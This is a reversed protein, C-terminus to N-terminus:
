RRTPEWTPNQEGRLARMWAAGAATISGVLYGLTAIARPPPNRKEPWRFALGGLLTGLAVAAFLVGAGPSRLAMLGLGVGALPMLATAVWRIVKHSWLMFAFRGHRFPDLLDRMFWLTELGRAMTRIKRRREVDLGPTRPVVALAQPVSVARYGARRALLASAFDRSLAAPFDSAFLGRRIAMFCGSAGVISGFRTELDRVWMEYGVYGSESANAESSAAAASVDRGSAAGVAPDQFVAVLPKISAPLVRTTADTSVIIEGRAHTAACNEAATKGVRHPITVLEVGRAAYERVIEDTGDSSADSLVLIQRRDAPYDTALLADLTTRIIRAENYVPLLITIRPWSEPNGAATIAPRGRTLLWLLAPYGIGAYLLLVLPVAILVAGLTAFMDSNM